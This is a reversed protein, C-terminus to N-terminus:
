ILNISLNKNLLIFNKTSYRCIYINTNKLFIKEKNLYIRM